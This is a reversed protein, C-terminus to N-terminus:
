SVTVTYDTGTKPTINRAIATILDKTLFPKSLIDDACAEIALTRLDPNASVLVVFPATETETCSSKIKKCLDLGSVDGLDVDIIYFNSESIMQELHFGDPYDKVDFGAAKVALVMLSRLDHDDEIITVMNGM